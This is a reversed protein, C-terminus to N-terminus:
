TTLNLYIASIILGINAFISLIFLFRLYLQWIRRMKVDRIIRFQIIIFLVFLVLLFLLIPGILHIKLIIYSILIASILHFIATYEMTKHIAKKKNKFLYKLFFYVIVTVIVPYTISFAILNIIIQPM